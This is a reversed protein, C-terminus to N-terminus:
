GFGLAVAGQGSGEAERVSFPRQGFMRSGGGLVQMRVGIIIM